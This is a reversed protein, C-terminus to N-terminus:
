LMLGKFFALGKEDKAMRILTLSLVFKHIPSNLPAKNVKSCSMYKCQYLYLLQLCSLVSFLYTSLLILVFKKMLVYQSYNFYKNFFLFWRSM